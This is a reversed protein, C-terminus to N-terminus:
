RMWKMSKRSLTCEDPWGDTPGFKKSDKFVSTKLRMPPYPCFVFVNHLLIMISKTHAHTSTRTHAYTHTHTNSHARTQTLRTIVWKENRPNVLVMNDISTNQNSVHARCPILSRALSALLSSCSLSHAIHAFSCASPKTNLGDMESNLCIKSSHVM